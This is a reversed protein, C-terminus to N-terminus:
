GTSVVGLLRKINYKITTEFNRILVENFNYFWANIQMAFIASCVAFTTIFWHKVIM